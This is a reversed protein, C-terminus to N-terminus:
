SSSAVAGSGVPSAVAQGCARTSAAGGVGIRVRSAIAGKTVEVLTGELPNRASIMM